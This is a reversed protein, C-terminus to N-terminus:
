EPVSVGERRSFESDVRHMHFLDTTKTYWGYAHMRGVLKLKPTNIYLKEPDLIFDDNIYIALVTGLVIGQTPTLDVIKMTQCELAIPSDTIRPPKVLASPSTALQAKELEDVGPAFDVETINMQTVIEESVLNVVFEGTEKINTFTDKQVAAGRGRAQPSRAAIGLVLVPPDSSVVNFWSFPAANLTGMESQTVVLAIPRPVVTSVLLKYRDKESLRNLELHM